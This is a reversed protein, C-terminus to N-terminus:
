AADNMVLNMLIKRGRRFVLGARALKNLELSVTERTSGILSAIERCTLNIEHPQTESTSCRTTLDQLLALLREGVSSRSIQQLRAITRNYEEGLYRAINMSLVPYRMLLSRMRVASCVAAISDCLSTATLSFAADEFLAEVGFLEERGIVRVTLECGDETLQAVRVCGQLLCYVRTCPDGQRFFQQRRGAHILTFQATCEAIAAESMGAFVSNGRLLRLSAGAVDM